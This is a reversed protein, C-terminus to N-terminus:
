HPNAAPASTPSFGVDFGEDTVTLKLNVAATSFAVRASGGAKENSNVLLTLDKIEPRIAAIKKGAQLVLRAAQADLAPGGSSGAYAMTSLLTVRFAALKNPGKNFDAIATFADEYIKQYGPEDTIGTTGLKPGVSYMMAWVNQGHKFASNDLPIFLSTLRDSRGNKSDSQYSNKPTPYHKNYAAILDKNVKAQQHAKTLQTSFESNLTGGGLQYFLGIDSSGANQTVLPQKLVPSDSLVNVWSNNLGTEYLVRLSNAPRAGLHTTIVRPKNPKVAGGQGPTLKPKTDNRDWHALTPMAVLKKHSVDYSKLFERYNAVQAETAFSTHSSANLARLKKTLIQNRKFPDTVGKLNTAKFSDLEAYASELMAVTSEAYDAAESFSTVFSQRLTGTLDGAIKCWDGKKLNFVREIWQLKAQLIGQYATRVKFYHDLSKVRDESKPKNTTGKDFFGLATVFDFKEEFEAIRGLVVIKLDSSSDDVWAKTEDNIKIIEREWGLVHTMLNDNEQAKLMEEIKVGLDAIAQQESYRSPQESKGFTDYLAKAISSAAALEPGVGPICFAVMQAQSLVQDVTDEAM